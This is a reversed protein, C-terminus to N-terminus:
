YFTRLSLFMGELRSHMFAASALNKTPFVFECVQGLGVM